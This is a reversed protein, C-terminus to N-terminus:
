AARVLRGHVALRTPHRVVALPSWTMGLERQDVRGAAEIVLEDGDRRLTADLGLSVSGGAAELSGRVQLRDGSLTARESVFRVQPHQEVGFFDASRLHADRRANDTNVSHAEITLQVAPSESLALTGHYRGFRGKVGALGWFNPVRFEIGSREPDLRWRTLQIDPADTYLPSSTSM